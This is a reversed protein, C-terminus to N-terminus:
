EWRPTASFASQSSPLHPILLLETAWGHLARCREQLGATINSAYPGSIIGKGLARLHKELLGKLKLARLPLRNNETSTTARNYGTNASVRCDLIVAAKVAVSGPDM